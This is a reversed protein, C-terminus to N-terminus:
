FVNKSSWISLVTQVKSCLAFIFCVIFAGTFGKTITSYMYM